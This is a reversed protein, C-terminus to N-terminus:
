LGTDSWVLSHPGKDPSQKRGPSLLDWALSRPLSEGHSAYEEEKQAETPEGPSSCTLLLLQPIRRRNTPSPPVVATPFADPELLYIYELQGRGAELVPSSGPVILARNLSM